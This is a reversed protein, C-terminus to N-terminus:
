FLQAVLRLEGAGGAHDGAAAAHLVALVELLDQLGQTVLEVSREAGGTRGDVGAEHGVLELNALGALHDGGLEVDGHADAAGDLVERAHLVGLSDNRDVLIGVRRDELDRVVAEDPVEEVLHRLQGALESSPPIPPVHNDKDCNTKFRLVTMTSNYVAGAPRIGVVNQRIATKDAAGWGAMAWQRYHVRLTLTCPGRPTAPLSRLVIMKSNHMAGAPRIGAWMKGPPRKTRPEGGRWAGNDM